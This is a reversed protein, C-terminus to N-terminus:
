NLHELEEKWGSQLRQALDTFNQLWLSHPTLRGRFNLSFDLFKEHDLNLFIGTFNLSNSHHLM